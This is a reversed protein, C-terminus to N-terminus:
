RPTAEVEVAAAIPPDYSVHRPDVSEVKLDHVGPTLTIKATTSYPMRWLDGDLYLPLYGEIPGLVLRPGGTADM